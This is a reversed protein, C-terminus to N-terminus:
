HRDGCSVALAREPHGLVNAAIEALARRGQAVLAGPVRGRLAAFTAASDTVVAAAGQALAKDIYLNGDTTGGRMAVFLDGASVRRSDYQVRGLAVSGGARELVAVGRLADEIRM